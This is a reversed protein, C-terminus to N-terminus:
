CAKCHKRKRSSHFFHKLGLYETHFACCFYKKLKLSSMKDGSLNNVYFSLSGFTFINIFIKLSTTLHKIFLVSGYLTHNKFVCLFENFFFSCLLYSKDRPGPVTSNITHYNNEELIRKINDLDRNHSYIAKIILLLIWQFVFSVSRLILAWSLMWLDPNPEFDSHTSDSLWTQSKAVGHVAAWWAGRDIPNELCSYQLPSGNGEGPRFEQCSNDSSYVSSSITLVWAWAYHDSHDNLLVVSCVLAVSCFLYTKNKSGVSWKSKDPIGSIFIHTM